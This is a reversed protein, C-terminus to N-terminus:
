MMVRQWASDPWSHSETNECLLSRGLLQGSVKLKEEDEEKMAPSRRYRDDSLVFGVYEDFEELVEIKIPTPEKTCIFTVPTRQQPHDAEGPVKIHFRGLEALTSVMNTDFSDVTITVISKAIATDDTHFCITKIVGRNCTHKIVANRFIKRKGFPSTMMTSFLTIKPAM